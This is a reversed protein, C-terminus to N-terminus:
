QEGAYRKGPEALIIELFGELNNWLSRLDKEKPDFYQNHVYNDLTDMTLFSERESLMKNVTKNVQGQIIAKTIMYKLMQKLTPSWSGPLKQSPTKKARKIREEDIISKLDGSKSLYNHTGM